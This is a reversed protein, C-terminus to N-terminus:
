ENTSRIKQSAIQSEFGDQRCMKITEGYLRKAEKTNVELGLIGLEYGEALMFYGACIKKSKLLLIAELFLKKYEVVSLGLEDQCKAALFPDAKSDKYNLYKKLLNITEVAAETNGDKISKSLLVTATRTDKVKYHFTRLGDKDAVEDCKEYPCNPMRKTLIKVGIDGRLYKLADEYTGAHAFSVVLCALYLAKKM